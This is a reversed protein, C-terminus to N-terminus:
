TLHGLQALTRVVGLPIILGEGGDGGREEEEEEIVGFWIVHLLHEVVKPKGGPKFFLSFFEKLIEKNLKKKSRKM